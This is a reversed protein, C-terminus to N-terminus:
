RDDWRGVPGPRTATPRSGGSKRRNEAKEPPSAVGACAFWLLVNISATSRDHPRSPTGIGARL